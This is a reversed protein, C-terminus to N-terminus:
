MSSPDIEAHASSGIVHSGGSTNDLTSRRTRPPAVGLIDPLLAM